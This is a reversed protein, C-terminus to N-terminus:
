RREWRTTYRGEGARRLTADRRSQRARARMRRVRRISSGARRSATVQTLEHIIAKEVRASDPEVDSLSLTFFLPPSEGSFGTLLSEISPEEYDKFSM